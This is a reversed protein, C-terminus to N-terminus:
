EPFLDDLIGQIGEDTLDADKTEKEGKSDVGLVSKKWDSYSQDSYSHCYMIWLKLEDDKEIEEKRREYEREMFSSVFEGFRGRNIYSNVLEMPNAYRTYLLDMFRM